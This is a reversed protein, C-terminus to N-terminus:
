VAGAAERREESGWSTQRRPKKPGLGPFRCHCGIFIHLFLPLSAFHNLLKTQPKSSKDFVLRFGIRLFGAVLEDSLQNSPCILDINMSLWKTPFSLEQSCSAGWELVSVHTDWQYGMREKAQRVVRNGSEGPSTGQTAAAIRLAAARGWPNRGCRLCCWGHRSPLSPSSGRSLDSSRLLPLEHYYDGRHHNCPPENDFSHTFRIGQLSTWCWEMCTPLHQQTLSLTPATPVLPFISRLWFISMLCCVCHFGNAPSIHPFTQRSIIPTM